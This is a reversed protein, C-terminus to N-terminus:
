TKRRQMGLLKAARCDLTARLGKLGPPLELPRTSFAVGFSPKNWQHIAALSEVSALRAEPSQFEIGIAAVSKGSCIAKIFLSRTQAEDLASLEVLQSGHGLLPLCARAAAHAMERDAGEFHAAVFHMTKMRAEAAAKSIFDQYDSPKM